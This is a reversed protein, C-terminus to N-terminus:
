RENVNMGDKALDTKLYMNAAKQLFDYEDISETFQLRHIPFENSTNVEITTPSLTINSYEPDVPLWDLEWINKNGYADKATYLEVDNIDYLRWYGRIYGIRCHSNLGMWQKYGPNHIHRATVDKMYEIGPNICIYNGDVYDVNSGLISVIPLKDTITLDDDELKELRYSPLVDVFRYDLGSVPTKVFKEKDTVEINKSSFALDFEMLDKYADLTRRIDQETFKKDVKIRKRLVM